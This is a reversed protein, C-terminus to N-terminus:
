SHKGNPLVSNMNLVVALTYHNDLGDGSQLEKVLLLHDATLLCRGM